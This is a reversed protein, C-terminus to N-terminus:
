RMSSLNTVLADTSARIESTLKHAMDRDASCCAMVVHTYREAESLVASIISREILKALERSQAEDPKTGLLACVARATSQANESINM